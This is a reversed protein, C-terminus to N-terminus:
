WVEAESSLPITDILNFMGQRLNNYQMHILHRERQCPFTKCTYSSVSDLLTRLKKGGFILHCRFTKRDSDEEDESIKHELNALKALARQYIHAVEEIEVLSDGYSNPRVVRGFMQADNKHTAFYNDIFQHFTQTFGQALRLYNDKESTIEEALRGNNEEQKAESEDRIKQLYQKVLLTSKRQEELDALLTEKVADLEPHYSPLIDLESRVSVYLDDPLM